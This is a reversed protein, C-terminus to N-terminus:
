SKLDFDEIMTRGEHKLYRRPTNIGPCNEFSPTLVSLLHRANALYAFRILVADILGSFEYITCINDIGIPRCVVM